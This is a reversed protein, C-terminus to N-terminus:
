PRGSISGQKLFTLDVPWRPTPRKVL